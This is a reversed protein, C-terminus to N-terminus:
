HALRDYQEPTILGKALNKRLIRRRALAAGTLSGDKLGQAEEETILGRKLNLDVAKERSLRMSLHREAIQNKLSAVGPPDTAKVKLDPHILPPPKAAGSERKAVANGKARGARPVQPSSFYGPQQAIAGLTDRERQALDAYTPDFSGTTDPLPPATYLRNPQASPYGMEEPQPTLTRQPTSDEPHIPPSFRSDPRMNVWQTWPAYASPLRM